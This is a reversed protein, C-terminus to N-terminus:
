KKKGEKMKKTIALKKGCGGCEFVYGKVGEFTKKQYPTTAEGEHGCEPCTYQIEM